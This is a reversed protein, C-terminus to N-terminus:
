KAQRDWDSTFSVSLVRIVIESQTATGIQLSLFLCFESMGVRFTIDFEMGDPQESDHFTTNTWTVVIYGDNVEATLSTTVDPPTVDIVVPGLTLQTPLGAKNTAKLFIYFRDGHGLGVHRVHYSSHGQTSTLTLLDHNFRDRGLGVFYDEM